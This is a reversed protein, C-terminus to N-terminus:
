RVHGANAERIRAAIRDRWRHPIGPWRRSVFDAATLGPGYRRTRFRLKGALDAARMALHDTTSLRPRNFVNRYGRRELMGGLQAEIRRIQAPTLEHRWAGARRPDPLQYTTHREIDLMGPDFEAGLHWCLRRLSKVPDRVLHEYRIEIWQRAPLRPRLRDWELELELWRRAAICPTGDWGMRVVSAAVARPDRVLHVLQARPWLMLLRALHRHVSAGVMPKGGALQRLFSQQLAAYDREATITLGSRRFVPDHRLHGHYENLPPPTGDDALWDVAFELQHPCAIEPHHDLLLRLLTSGSREAGVVFFVRRDTSKGAPDPM